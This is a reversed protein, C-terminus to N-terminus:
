NKYSPDESDLISRIAQYGSTKEYVDIKQCAPDEFRSTVIKELTFNM